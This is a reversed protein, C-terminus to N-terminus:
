LHGLDETQVLCNLITVDVPHYVCFGYLYSFRFFPSFVCVELPADVSSIKAYGPPSEMRCVCTFSLWKKASGHYELFCVGPCMSWLRCGKCVWFTRRKCVRCRRRLTGKVSHCPTSRRAVSPPTSQRHGGSSSGRGPPAGPTGSGSAPTLPQHVPARGDASVVVSTDVSPIAAHAPPPPVEAADFSHGGGNVSEQSLFVAEDAIGGAEEEGAAPAASGVASANDGATSSRHRQYAMSDSVLPCGMLGHAVALMYREHDMPKEGLDTCINKYRLYSNTTASDLGFFFLRHWWKKTFIQTTYSARLQDQTDVGRMMASYLKQIPSTPIESKGGSHHRTATTGGHVMPDAASSLFSVGKTDQWHIASMSRERHMRIELSGRPTKEPVKLSTPFGVRGQRATGVAYFGRRLLDEFLMPSTFYNDMVVTYWQGEWGNTLRTVVGAGAGCAHQPLGAIAENAAGVYVELNLVYKSVSCCLCWVKIGHTIPKLPLYQKFSCYRGNYPVMSEDVCLYPSANWLSQFNRVLADLLWRVQAIPDYRPDAKDYKLSDKGAIHLCQLIYLFRKRSMTSAVPECHLTDSQIAWFDRVRPQNRVAMLICIGIFRRHEKLTIRPEIARGGKRKGTKPDVWEAYANSEKVIRRQIGDSWIDLFSTVPDIPATHHIKSGAPPGTFQERPLLQWSKADWNSDSFRSEFSQEEERAPGETYQGLGALLTRPGEGGSGGSDGDSFSAGGGARPGNGGGDSGGEHDVLNYDPIWEPDSDGSYFGPGSPTGQGAVHHGSLVQMDLATCPTAQAKRILGELGVRDEVTRPKPVWGTCDEARVKQVGFFDGFDIELMTVGVEDSCMGLVNGFVRQCPNLILEGGWRMDVVSVSVKQLLNGELSMETLDDMIVREPSPEAMSADGDLFDGPRLHEELQGRRAQVQLVEESPSAGPRTGATSLLQDGEALLGGMGESPDTIAAVSLTINM